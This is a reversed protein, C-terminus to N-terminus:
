IQKLGYLVRELLSLDPRDDFRAPRHVEVLSQDAMDSVLLRVVGLPLQLRAAIEAISLVDRCLTAISRREFSLQRANAGVSTTTVLAEVEIEDQDLRLRGGTIAYPRVVRNARGGRDRPMAPQRGGIVAEPPM